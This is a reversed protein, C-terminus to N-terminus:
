WEAKTSVAVQPASGCPHFAAQAGDGACAAPNAFVLPQHRIRVAHHARHSGTLADRM